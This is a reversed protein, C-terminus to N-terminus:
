IIKKCIPLPRLTHCEKAWRTFLKTNISHGVCRHVVLVHGTQYSKSVKLIISLRLFNGM